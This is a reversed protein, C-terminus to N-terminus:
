RGCRKGTKKEYLIRREMSKIVSWMPFSCTLEESIGRIVSQASGNDAIDNSLVCLIYPIKGNMIIAADNEISGLGYGYPM